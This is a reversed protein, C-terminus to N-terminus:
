DIYGISCNLTRPLLRLMYGDFMQFRSQAKINMYIINVSKRFRKM